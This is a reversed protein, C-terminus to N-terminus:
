RLLEEDREKQLTSQIFCINLKIGYKKKLKILLKRFMIKM